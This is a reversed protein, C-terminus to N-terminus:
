YDDFLDYFNSPDNLEELFEKYIKQLNESAEITTASDCIHGNSFKDDYGYWCRDCEWIRHEEYCCPCNWNNLLGEFILADNMDEDLKEKLEKEYKECNEWLYIDDKADMILDFNFIDKFIISDDKNNDDFNLDELNDFYLANKLFIENNYIMGNNPFDNLKVGNNIRYSYEILKSDDYKSEKIKCIFDYNKCINKNNSEIYSLYSINYTYKLIKKDDIFNDNYDTDDTDDDIFNDHNDYYNNCSITFKLINGYIDNIYISKYELGYCDDGQTCLYHSIYIINKLDQIIDVFNKPSKTYEYDHYKILNDNIKELNNIPDQSKYLKDFIIDINKKNSIFTHIIHWSKCGM